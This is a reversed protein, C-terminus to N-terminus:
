RKDNTGRSYCRMKGREHDYRKTTVTANCDIPRALPLIPEAAPLLGKSQLYWERELTGVLMFMGLFGFIVLWLRNM